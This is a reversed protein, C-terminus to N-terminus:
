THNGVLGQRWLTMMEQLLNEKDSTRAIQINPRGSWDPPHWGENRLSPWTKGRSMGLTEVRIPAPQWDFLNPHTLVMMAAPDHLVIGDFGAANRYFDEYFPVARDFVRGVPGTQAALERRQQSPMRLKETVDLGVMRVTWRAGFVIDAAEPDNLINAEATPTANGPGFANGGMIILERVRLDLDPDHDLAAAINTLPGLAVLILAGEHASATDAILHLAGRPDLEPTTDPVAKNGGIGDPGHVFLADGGLEADRPKSCGAAIPIDTRGFLSLLGAANHTMMDLPGNGFVTTIAKVDIDPMAFALLLALADDVGPDTDILVPRKLGPQDSFTNM